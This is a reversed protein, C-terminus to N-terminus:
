SIDPDLIRGFFSEAEASIDPTWPYAPSGVDYDLLVSPGVTHRAHMEFCRAFVETCSLYYGAPEIGSGRVARAYARRLPAFAPSESVQGLAHDLAHAYEHVFAGTAQTPVLVERFGRFYAARYRRGSFRRFRVAALADRGLPALGNERLALFARDIAETDAATLANDFEVKAFSTNLTSEREAARVRRGRNRLDVHIRSAAPVWRGDGRVAALAAMAGRLWDHRGKRLGFSAVVDSESPVSTAPLGMESMFGAFEVAGRCVPMRSPSSLASRCAVLVAESLALDPDMLLEAVEGDHCVTGHEWPDDTIRSAVTMGAVGFIIRGGDRSIGGGTRSLIGERVDLPMGSILSVMESAYLPMGGTAMTHLVDEM